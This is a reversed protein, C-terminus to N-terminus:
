FKAYARILRSVVPWQGGLETSTIERYNWYAPGYSLGSTGSKNTSALPEAPLGTSRQLQESGEQVESALRTREAEPGRQKSPRVM